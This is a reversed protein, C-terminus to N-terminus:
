YSKFFLALSKLFGKMNGKLTHRKFKEAIEQENQLESIVEKLIEFDKDVYLGSKKDRAIDKKFSKEIKIELM